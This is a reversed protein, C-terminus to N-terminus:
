YKRYGYEDYIKSIVQKLKKYFKVVRNQDNVGKPIIDIIECWGNGTDWYIINIEEGEILWARDGYEPVHKHYNKSNIIKELIDSEVEM